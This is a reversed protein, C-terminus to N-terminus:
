LRLELGTRLRGLVDGTQHATGVTNVTFTAGLLPLGLAIELNASLWHTLEVRVRAGAWLATWAASPDAGNPLDRANALLRGHELRLCPSLEPARTLGQCVGIAAALLSLRAVASERESRFADQAPLYTGSLELATRGLLLGITLGPGLALSPLIGADLSAEPRILLWPERAPPPPASSADAEPDILLALILAAAGAIESCSRATLSREGQATQLELRYANPRGTVQATARLTPGTQAAAAGLRAEIADEVDSDSPCGLPARWELQLREVNARVPVGSLVIALVVASGLLL